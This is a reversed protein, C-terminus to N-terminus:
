GQLAVTGLSANQAASFAIALNGNGSTTVTNAIVMSNLTSTEAGNGTLALAEGKTYVTGTLLTGGNGNLSSSTANNRDAFIALGQFPGSAPPTIGTAGNGTISFTAGSQGATCPAPYASCAFYLTVGNGTLAGGGSFSMSHTIIYTGPAMTLSAQGQVSINQYIGPTISASTSGTLNVDPDVVAPCVAAGAQPCQLLSALPDGVPPAQVPQPTYRGNGTTRFGDPASPGGIEDAVVSSYGIVSAADAATSNDLLAAGTVQVLATGNARFAPNATSSLVCLGCDPSTIVRATAAAAVPVSVVGLVRGFSTPVAMAPLRVRLRTPSTSSDASICGNGHAADPQYPLAAADTCGSWSLAASPLNAQVFTEVDSVVRPWGPFALLDQAGALAASDASAQAAEAYSRTRALDIGVGAMGVLVVMLVGVVVAIAGRDDAACAAVRRAVAAAMRRVISGLQIAHVM